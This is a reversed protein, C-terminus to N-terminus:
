VIWLQMIFLHQYFPTIHYWEIASHNNLQLLASKNALLLSKPETEMKRRTLEVGIIKEFYQSHNTKLLKIRKNLRDTEM